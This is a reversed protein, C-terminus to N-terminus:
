SAVRVTQGDLVAFAGVEFVGYDVPYDDHSAYQAPLEARLEANVDLAEAESAYPGYVASVADEGRYHGHTKVIVFM